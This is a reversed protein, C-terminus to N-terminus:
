IKENYNDMIKIFIADIKERKTIWMGKEIGMDFMEKETYPEIDDSGGFAIENLLPILLVLVITIIISCVFFLIFKLVRNKEM